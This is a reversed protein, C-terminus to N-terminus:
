GPSPMSAAISLCNPLSNEMLTTAMDVSVQEDKTLVREQPQSNVTTKDSAPEHLKSKAVEVGYKGPAQMLHSKRFYVRRLTQRRRPAGV